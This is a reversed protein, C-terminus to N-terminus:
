DRLIAGGDVHLCQGTINFADESALFAVAKGVDEVSQPRGLPTMPAYTAVFVEYPDQAAIDPNERQRRATGREQLPTWVAGPCVANVNINFPALEVALGKTYRLVAAKSVGYAGGVRRAAHGAMSSINVIKGSRRDRMSAAALNSCRVTGRLNVDLIVTWDIDEDPAGERGPTATVVGANNVLIDLRHDTKDIRQFAETVSAEDTVDLQVARAMSGIASAAEEVAGLRIDSVWVSAGQAALVTAIGLGMGAGSGTVLAVRGSLDGLM